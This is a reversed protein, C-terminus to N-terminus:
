GEREQREVRALISRLTADLRTFDITAAAPDNVRILYGRGSSLDQARVSARLRRRVRNREVAGGVSKGIAYAVRPPDLVSGLPATRVELVGARLRRGRALARFSAPDRVRWILGLPPRSGALSPGQAGRPWGPHAHPDPVRAEEQAEPQEAPLDAERQGREILHHARPLMAAFPPPSPPAPPLAFRCGLARSPRGAADRSPGRARRSGRARGSRFLM